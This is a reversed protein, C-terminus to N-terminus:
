CISQPEGPSIFHSFDNLFINFCLQGLVSGQPVGRRNLEWFSLEDDVKVWQFRESIIRHCRAAATTWVM